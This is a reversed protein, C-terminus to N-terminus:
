EKKIDYVCHVRSTQIQSFLDLLFIQKVATCGDMCVDTTLSGAAAANKASKKYM